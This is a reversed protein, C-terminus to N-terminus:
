DNLMHHSRLVKDMKYYVLPSSSSLNNIKCQEKVDYKKATYSDAGFLGEKYDVYVGSCTIKDNKMCTKLVSFYLVCNSDFDFVQVLNNDGNPATIIARNSNEASVNFKQDKFDSVPIGEMNLIGALCNLSYDDLKCIIRYGEISDTDAYFKDGFRKYTNVRSYKTDILSRVIVDGSKTLFAHDSDSVHPKAEDLFTRFLYLKKVETSAYQKEFSAIEDESSSAINRKVINSSCGLVFCVLLLVLIKKM